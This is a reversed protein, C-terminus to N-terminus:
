TVAFAVAVSAVIAAIWPWEGRKLTVLRLCILAGVAVLSNSVLIWPHLADLIEAREIVPTYYFVWAGVMRGCVGLSLIAFGLAFQGRLKRWDALLERAAYPGVILASTLCLSIVVSTSWIQITNM